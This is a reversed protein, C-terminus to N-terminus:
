IWKRDMLFRRAAAAPPAGNRVQQMLTELHEVALQGALRRLAPAVTSFQIDELPRRASGLAPWGPVQLLLPEYDEPALFALDLRAERLERAPDKGTLPLRITEIGTKEKIYISVLAYFLDDQPEDGTGVHLKPGYCACSQGAVFLCVMLITLFFTKM